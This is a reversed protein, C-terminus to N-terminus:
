EPLSAAEGGARTLIAALVTPDVDPTVMDLHTDGFLLTHIGAAHSAGSFLRAAAQDPATNFDEPKTWPVANEPPVELILVTKSMGDTISTAPVGRLTVGSGIAKKVSPSALAMGPGAAALYTTRGATSDLPTSPCVFCSPMLPILARNHESDWPEDLHFRSYLESEELYPLIAVRWSLLPKGNTDVIAAPILQHASEANMMGLGLMRANSMCGTRRAAERAAQVAPLMLGVLVPAVVMNISGLIIGAIALGQGSLRPGSVARESHRIRNLGVAGLIIAPIGTLCSLGCSFIGLILSAIAAGSTRQQRESSLPNLPPPQM